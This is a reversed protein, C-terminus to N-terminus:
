VFKEKPFTVYGEQNAVMASFTGTIITKSNFDITFKFLYTSERGSIM